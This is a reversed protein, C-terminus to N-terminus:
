YDNKLFASLEIRPLLFKRKNKGYISATFSSKYGSEEIVKIIRNNFQGHSFAYYSVEVDFFSELKEKSTLVEYKLDRETLGTVISHTSGHSGLTFLGSDIMEKIEEKKLYGPCDLLDASVFGCFPINYKKLCPYVLSYLDEFGDDFTLVIKKKDKKNVYNDISTFSDKNNIIFQEFSDSSVSYKDILSNECVHHGMLVIGYRNIKSTRIVRKGIAKIEKKNLVDIMFISCLVLKGNTRLPPIIIQMIVNIILETLVTALAAGNAGLPPIFVFNLLLNSCAGILTLYKVYNEKKNCLLWVNRATGLYSLPLQWCLIRLTTIAYNYDQGYLLDIAINSFICLFSSYIFALWFVTSYLQKIRRNTLEKESSSNIKYIITASSDIIAVLVFSFASTLVLSVSYYSVYSEDFFHKLMIKDTQSYIAIMLGSIIYHYSRSLIKPIYDKSVKIGGRNDKLYKTILMIAILLYDLTTATAFWVISKGTFIIYLKFASVILYAITSIISPIKSNLKYLYWYNIIEVAQGLFVASELLSIVFYLPNDKNLISVIAITAISCLVSSLVRLLLSTGMVKDYERPNEILIKVVVSNIGLSVISAFFAIYSEVYSIIGFNTPGYFRASLISIILGLAMQVIRSGIIWFTNKVFKIGSSM